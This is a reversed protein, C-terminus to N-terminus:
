LNPKETMAAPISRMSFGKDSTGVITLDAQIM